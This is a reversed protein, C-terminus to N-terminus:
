RNLELKIIKNMNLDYYLERFFEDRMRDYKPAFHGFSVYNSNSNKYIAKSVGVSLHKKEIAHIVDNNMFVAEILLIYSDKAFRIAKKYNSFDSAIDTIYTIDQTVPYEIIKDAIDFIYHQKIGSYTDINLVDNRSNNLLAEKLLKVWPGNKFGYEQMKEKNVSIRKPEVIRYGISTISHDFFEYELSFGDNLKLEDSTVVFREEKFGNKASFKAGFRGQESLEIAIFTVDYDYILNWTYSALKGKVNDIFGAPGFFTITNGSLLATRLFRDFGCFHDIHTHSVFVYSIDNIESNDINGLRGCDFLVAKKMYVNRVFIGSDDFPSNLRRITYNSKM